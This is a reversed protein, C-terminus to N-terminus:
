VLAVLAIVPLALAPAAPRPATLLRAAADAVPGLVQAAGTARWAAEDVDPVRDGEVRALSTAVVLVLTVGSAGTAWAPVALRRALAALAFPVLVAGALPALVVPSTFAAAFPLCAVALLTVAWLTVAAGPGRRASTPQPAGPTVTAGGPTVTGGGPGLRAP